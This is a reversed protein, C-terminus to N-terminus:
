GTDTDAPLPVSLYSLNPWSLRSFGVDVQEVTGKHMDVYVDGLVSMTESIRWTASASTYDRQPGFLDTTRRDFPPVQGGTRNILPIYPQNWLFRDPGAIANSSDSVWVFDTWSLCNARRDNWPGGENGNRRSELDAYQQDAVEHDRRLHRGRSQASDHPSAQLDWTSEAGPYV